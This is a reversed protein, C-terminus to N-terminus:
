GKVIERIESIGKKVDGWLQETDSKIDEFTKDGSDKIQNLKLKLAERKKSLVEIREELTAKLDQSEKNAKAQLEDIQTNWERLKNELKNIYEERTAM